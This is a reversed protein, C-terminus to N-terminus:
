GLVNHANCARVIFSATERGAPSSKGLTLVAMTGRDSKWVIWLEGNLEEVEWPPTPTHKTESM